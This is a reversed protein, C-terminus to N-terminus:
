FMVLFVNKCPFEIRQNNRACLTDAYVLISLPSIFYTKKSFSAVVNYCSWQLPLTYFWNSVFFGEVWFFTWFSNCVNETFVLEAFVQITQSVMSIFIPINDVWSHIPYRASRHLASLCPLLRCSFACASATTCPSASSDRTLTEQLPTCHFRTLHFM